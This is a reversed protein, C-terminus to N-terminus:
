HGFGCHEIDQALECCACEASCIHEPFLEGFTMNNHRIGDVVSEVVHGSDVECGQIRAICCGADAESVWLYVSGEATKHVAHMRVPVLDVDALAAHMVASYAQDATVLRDQCVECVLLHEEIKALEREGTVAELSYREIDEQSPCKLAIAVNM